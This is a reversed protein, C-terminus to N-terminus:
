RVYRKQSKIATGLGEKYNDMNFAAAEEQKASKLEYFNKVM